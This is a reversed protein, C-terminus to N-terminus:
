WEAQIELSESLGFHYAVEMAKLRNSLMEQKALNYDGLFERILALGEEETMNEKGKVLELDKNAALAAQIQIMEDNKGM